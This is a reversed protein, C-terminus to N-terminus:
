IVIGVLMVTMGFICGVFFLHRSPINATSWTDAFYYVVMTTFFILVLKLM